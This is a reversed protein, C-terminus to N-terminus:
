KGYHKDQWAKFWQDLDPHQSRANEIISEGTAPPIIGFEQKLWTRFHQLEPTAAEEPESGYDAYGLEDYGISLLTLFEELNNALVKNDTGESGLFVIPAESIKKNDYLWFCYSSDDQTQGVEIFQKATETDGDFCYKMNEPIIRVEFGGSYATQVQQHYAFLKMLATPTDEPLSFMACFEQINM